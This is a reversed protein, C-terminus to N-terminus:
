FVISSMSTLSTEKSQFGELSLNGNFFWLDMPKKKKRNKKEMIKIETYLWRLTWDYKTVEAQPFGCAGQRTYICM